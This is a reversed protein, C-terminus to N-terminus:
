AAVLRRLTQADYPAHGAADNNFYVFTDLGQALWSRVRDAWTALREEGYGSTYLAESGHMRLYMFDTTPTDLVPWDAAADAVVLAVDHSAFVEQAEATTFSDHRAEVAHRLPRDVCTQTWARDAAVKGDHDRALRAAAGTSHPLLTLFGAVRDADFRLNAPLQWLVPGLADGLALPGSAFFNALPAQVERLRKMHTIFRGGKVAFVFGEPVEEVWRQYTSPRQLSYFSGNIEVSDVREALYGLEARHALGSPYFDGRWEPYNWGSTGILVRAM